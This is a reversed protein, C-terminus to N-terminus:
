RPPSREGAECPTMEETYRQPQLDQPLRIRGTLHNHQRTLEALKIRALCNHGFDVAYNHLRRLTLIQLNRGEIKESDVERALLRKEIVVLERIFALFWELRTEQSKSTLYMIELEEREEEPFQWEEYSYGGTPLAAQCLVQNVYEVGHRNLGMRTGDYTRGTKEALEGITMVADGAKILRINTRNRSQTTKSAWRLNELEYMGKPNIRDLTYGKAPVPGLHTLFSKFSTLESGWTVANRKAWSKRDKWSHFETSYSAKLECFKVQLVDEKLQRYRDAYELDNALLDVLGVSHVIKM